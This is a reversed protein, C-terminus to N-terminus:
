KLQNDFSLPIVNKKPIKVYTYYLNDKLDPYRELVQISSLKFKIETRTFEKFENSNLNTNDVTLNLSYFKMSISTLISFVAQEESTKWCESSNGSSTFMGVAYYYNDDAWTNKKIWSPAPVSDQDIIKKVFLVDKDLSFAEVYDGTLVSLVFRDYYVLKGNIRDIEEIPYVYYYQFNNLFYLNKDTYTELYGSVECKKFICYM